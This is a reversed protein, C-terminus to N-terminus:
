DTELQSFSMLVELELRLLSALQPGNTTFSQWSCMKM